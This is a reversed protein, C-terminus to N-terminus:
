KFVLTVMDGDYDGGSLLSLKSRLGKGSFVIVDTLHSLRPADVARVKQVDSPLLAPNQFDIPDDSSLM